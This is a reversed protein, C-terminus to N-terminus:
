NGKYLGSICVVIGTNNTCYDMFEIMTGPSSLHDAVTIVPVPMDDPDLYKISVITFSYLCVRFNSM